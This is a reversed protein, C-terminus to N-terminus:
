RMAYALNVPLKGKLRPDRLKWIVGDVFFHHIQVAAIVIPEVIMLSRGTIVTVRPLVWFLFVGGILNIGFWRLQIGKSRGNSASIGYTMGAIYFYQLSHFFPVYQMSVSSIPISLWLVLSILPLMMLAPPKLGNKKRQDRFIWLLYFGSCAVTAAAIWPIVPNLQLSPYSVGFYKLGVPGSEIKAISYVYIGYVFVLLANRLQSNVTMGARMAYMMSIGFAQGSYHYPSWLLYLKIFWPAFSIPEALALGVGAFLVMPVLFSTFPFASVYKKNGYLRHLTASFHPWNVLVSLVLPISSISTETPQINSIYFIFFLIFSLGGMCLWDVFPIGLSTKGLIHSGM